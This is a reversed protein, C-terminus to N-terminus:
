RVGSNNFRLTVPPAGMGRNFTVDEIRYVTLGDVVVTSMRRSSEEWNANLSADMVQRVPEWGAGFTFGGTGVAVKEEAPEFELVEFSVLASTHAGNQFAAVLVQFDGGTPVVSVEVVRYTAQYSTEVIGYIGQPARVEGDVYTLQLDPLLNGATDYVRGVAQISAGHGLYELSAKDSGTFVLTDHITSTVSHRAVVTGYSCTLLAPATSYLRLKRIPWAAEDQRYLQEGARIKPDRSAEKVAAAVAASSYLGWLTPHKAIYAQGEAQLQAALADLAGEVKSPLINDDALYELRLDSAGAGPAFEVRVSTQSM